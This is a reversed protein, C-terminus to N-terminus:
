RRGEGGAETRGNTRSVDKLRIKEKWKVQGKKWLGM